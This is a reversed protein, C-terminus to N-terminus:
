NQCTLPPCKRTPGSWTVRYTIKHQFLLAFTARERSGAIENRIINKYMSTQILPMERDRACKAWECSVCAVGFEIPFLLLHSIHTRDGNREAYSSFPLRSSLIWGLRFSPTATALQCNHHLLLLKDTPQNTTTTALPRILVYTFTSANKVNRLYSIIALCKLAAALFICMPWANGGRSFNIWCLHSLGSPLQQQQQQFIVIGVVVIVVVGVLVNTAPTPAGFVMRLPFSFFFFVLSILFVFIPSQHVRIFALFDFSNTCSARTTSGNKSWKYEGICTITEIRVNCVFGWWLIRNAM